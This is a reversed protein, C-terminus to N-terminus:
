FQLDKNLLAQLRNLYSRLRLLNPEFNEDTVSLKWTFLDNKKMKTVAKAQKTGIVGM